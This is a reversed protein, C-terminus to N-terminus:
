KLGLRKENGVFLGVTKVLIVTLILFSTNHPVHMAQKFKKELDQFIVMVNLAPCNNQLLCAQQITYELSRRELSQQRSAYFIVLSAHYYYYCQSKLNVM